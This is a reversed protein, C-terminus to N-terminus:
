CYVYMCTVIFKKFHVAVPVGLSCVSYQLFYVMYTSITGVVGTRKSKLVAMGVECRLNSCNNKISTETRKM